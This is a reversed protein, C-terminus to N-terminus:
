RTGYSKDTFIKQTWQEMVYDASEILGKIYFGQSPMAYRKLFSPRWKTVRIWVGRGPEEFACGPNDFAIFM